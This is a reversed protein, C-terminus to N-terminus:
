RVLSVHPHVIATSCRAREVVAQSISGVHMGSPGRHRRAGVMLMEANRSAEILRSRVDGYAIKPEVVVEPHMTRLGVVSEALWGSASEALLDARHGPVAVVHMVTLALGRVSALGFAFEVAASSASTGDTAVVIGSVAHPQARVVVVPCRASSSVRLGVSGRIVSAVPGLRRSGLVLLHASEGLRLLARVPDDLLVLPEIHVREGPLGNRPGGSRGLAIAACRLGHETLRRGAVTRMGGREVPRQEHLPPVGVAHAIVLPRGEVLAQRAAWDVAEMSHRQGDVGVVISGPAVDSSTRQAM